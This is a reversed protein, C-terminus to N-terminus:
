NIQSDHLIAERIRTVLDMYFYLNHITALRLGLIEDVQFLHRLYARSFNQCTYCSCSTDIVDFDRQHRQNKLVMKGNRTYVTGNRGNRTPIVCDFMDIGRSVAEVIDEPKGVGMLYRPKEYPLYDTCFDTIDLMVSNPEGVALGGIAYGEFSIDMLQHISQERIPKYTSGQVIGFLLQEKNLPPETSNFRNRCCEAWRVTRENAKLAEEYSCPYPSCEDLVMMIDSGIERQIEIIREPTFTHYSGDWHSQFRVGEDTIKRFEPLSFIQYGGSDTLIPGNWGMFCHLGGSELLLTSGPRLYLHYTNCLIMKSGVETLERPSVTKVTGQTGVPMFIPTPVSGHPTELVGARAKTKKSTEILRFVVKKV